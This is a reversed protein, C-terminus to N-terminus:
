RVPNVPQLFQIRIPLALEPIELRQIQRAIMGPRDRGGASAFPHTELDIRLQQLGELLEATTFFRRQLRSQQGQDSHEQM